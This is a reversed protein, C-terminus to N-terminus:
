SITMSFSFDASATYNDDNIELDIRQITYRSLTLSFDASANYNDDILVEKENNVIITMSLSFDASATYNDNEQYKFLRSELVATLTAGFNSTEVTAQAPTYLDAASITSQEVVSFPYLDSVLGKRVIYDPKRRTHMGSQLATIVSLM